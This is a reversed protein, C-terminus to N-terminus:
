EKGDAAEGAPMGKYTRGRYKIHHTRCYVTVKHGREVLRAGLQEVCTEFGSYSAPVGRTGLMAVHLKSNQTKLKSNPM